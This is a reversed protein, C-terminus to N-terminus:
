AQVLLFIKRLSSLKIFRTQMIHLHSTVGVAAPHAPPCATTTAPLISVLPRQGTVPVLKGVLEDWNDLLVRALHEPLSCPINPMKLSWLFMLTTSGSGRDPGPIIQEPDLMLSLASVFKLKMELKLGSFEPSYRRQIITLNYYSISFPLYNYIRRKSQNGTYPTNKLLKFYVKNINTPDPDAHIWFKQRSGSYIMGFGCCQKKVHM